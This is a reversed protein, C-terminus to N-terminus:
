ARRANDYEEVWEQHEAMGTRQKELGLMYAAMLDADKAASFIAMPDAAVVKVWHRLYAAHNDIHAQSVPVGTEAALIASCIEARLEEVAYADDGWKKALAEKRDMRKAHLTSHAAEHMATSYYDHVSNFKKKPPLRVEDLEPLYCAQSGKHVILLGTKEQLAAMVGEARQIPDFELGSAAQLEPVGDIQQANFVTYRKLAFARQREEGGQEAAQGGADAGSQAAERPSLEVLKVIQTGKEGRRVQWKNAQAQQYTMWRPDDRGSLALLIRNIGRYANNSTPNVPRLSQSSWPKQWPTDGREMADILTRAIDSKVDVRPAPAESQASM